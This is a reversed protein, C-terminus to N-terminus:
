HASDVKRAAMCIHLGLHNLIGVNLTIAKTTFPIQFKRCTESKIPEFGCNRIVKVLAEPTFITKHDAQGLTVQKGITYSLMRNLSYANPTTIVLMGNRKLVRWVEVLAPIPSWLHELLEGMIVCDFKDGNFPLQEITACVLQPSRMQKLGSIDIDLGWVDGSALQDIKEHWLGKNGVCGIDLIKEADLYQKVFDIRAM